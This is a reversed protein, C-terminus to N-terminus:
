QVIKGKETNPIVDLNSQGVSLLEIYNLKNLIFFVPLDFLSTNEFDTGFFDDGFVNMLLAGIDCSLNLRNALSNEVSEKIYEVIQKATEFNETM